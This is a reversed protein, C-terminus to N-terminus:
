AFTLVVKNATKSWILDFANQYAQWPLVHSIWDALDLQHQDILGLLQDHAAAESVRPTYVRPDQMDAEAFPESQPAVGYVSVKGTPAALALCRALAAQSGVAEFVREFGGAVSEDDTVYNDAGLAAFRAAHQSNRGFVVISKAGVLRAFLTMSQAAPGTGVIAVTRGVVDGQNIVNLNEKLMILATAHTPDIGDPVVQQPHVGAQYTRNDRAWVDTVLTYEAFGGWCSRGGPKEVHRDTLNGRLVRQGVKFNKVQDGLAVIRGVTEHGLLLPWTGAFFEGQILKTDTSNCIACAETKVLAEYPGPTPQPLEDITLQGAQVVFLGQM